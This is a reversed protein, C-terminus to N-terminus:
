TQPAPLSTLHPQSFLFLALTLDALTRLSGEPPEAPFWGLVLPGLLFGASVFIIPGSLVGREIRGALVSYFFVFVALIALQENM